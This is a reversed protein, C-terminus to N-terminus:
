NMDSVNSGTKRDGKTVRKGRQVSSVNTRSDGLVRDMVGSSDVFSTTANKAISGSAVLNNKYKATAFTSQRKRSGPSYEQRKETLYSFAQKVKTSQQAVPM